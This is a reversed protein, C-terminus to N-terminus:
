RDTDTKINNYKQVRRSTRKVSPSHASVGVAESQLPYDLLCSFSSLIFARIIIISHYFSQSLSSLILSALLVTEKSWSDKEGLEKEVEESNGFFHHPNERKGGWKQQQKRIQKISIFYFSTVPHSSVVFSVVLVLHLFSSLADVIRHAHKLKQLRHHNSVCILMFTVVCFLKGKWLKRKRTKGGWHLSSWERARKRTGKNETKNELVESHFVVVAVAWPFLYRCSCSNHLFAPSSSSSPAQSSLSLSSFSFPPNM